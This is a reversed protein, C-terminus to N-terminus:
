RLQGSIDMEFAIEHLQDRVDSSSAVTSTGSIRLTWSLMNRCRLKQIGYQKVVTSDTLNYAFIPNTGTELDLVDVDSDAAVGFVQVTADTFKGKPRLKRLIKSVMESGADIFNWACYWPVDEGSAVDFRFTDVRDTTGSRRGGALFELHNNVTAVGSVVMDRTTDTLVVKTIWDNKTLSYLWVDTEWYDNANKRIASSFVAILENKPDHAIFVYGSSVNLLQSEVDSAFEYSEQGEDGTAISRFMKGGSFGYLTDNVFTLNYPNVFGRKWFPRATFPASTLGTPTVAQLTNPTMVFIRGAASVQGLITEGKETPVKFTSPFADLNLPKAPSVFAGPSTTLTRTGSDVGPGNTSILFPYRDLTGLYEADPPADNDFSAITASLDNDVYDFTYAESTLDTFKVRTLEFWAGQVANVASTASSGSFATAYIIYGTAKAPRNSVDITFDIKFTSNAVTIQYGGTGGSLLTDSPNGFGETVDSYYAVEFSYYGASTNKTGGSAIVTVAANKAATTVASFPVASFGVSQVDYDGTTSDYLAIQVQRTAALSDGQLVAGNVYLTGDGVCMITGRDFHLANGRLLVGRKVDLPFIVPLRKAAATTENAYPLRANIFSTQSVLRAVVLIEGGACQIMQGLHLEDLFATGTGTITTSATTFTVTGTLAIPSFNENLNLSGAYAELYIAGPVGRPILNEGRLIVQGEEGTLPSSPRYPASTFTGQM